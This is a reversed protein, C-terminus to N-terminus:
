YDILEFDSIQMPQYCYQTCDRNSSAALCSALCDEVHTLFQYVGYRGLIYLMNKEHFFWSQLYLESRAAVFSLFVISFRM